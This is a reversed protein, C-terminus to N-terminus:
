VGRKNGFLAIHLRTTIRFNRVMAAEAIVQLRANIAGADIGEPMIYVASPPLGHLRAIVDIEDFDEVTQVVFKFVAKNFNALHAFDELADPHYRRKKDNGSNELKPSVTYLNIRSTLSDSPRITGATEIEIHQFKHFTAKTTEIPHQESHDILRVISHAQLMPEGGTIVLNRDHWNSIMMHVTPIALTKVEKRPDYHMWDWTYPTDCWVCGLNCHALRLFTCPMGLNRGEGQISHFVESVWMPRPDLTDLDVKTPEIM